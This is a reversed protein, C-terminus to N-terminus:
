SNNDSKVKSKYSNNGSIMDNNKISYNRIDNYKIYDDNRINIIVMKLITM